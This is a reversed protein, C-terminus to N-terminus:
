KAQCQHSIRQGAFVTHIVHVAPMLDLVANIQEPRGAGVEIHVYTVNDKLEKHGQIRDIIGVYDTGFAKSVNFYQKNTDQCTTTSDAWVFVFLSDPGMFETSRCTIHCGYFQRNNKLGVVKTLFRKLDKKVIIVALIFIPWM